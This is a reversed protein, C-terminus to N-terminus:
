INDNRLKAKYDDIPNPTMNINQFCFTRKEDKVRKVAEKNEEGIRRKLKRRSRTKVLDKQAIVEINQSAIEFYSHSFAAKKRDQMNATRKEDKMGFQHAQEIFDEIFCGIGNVKRM